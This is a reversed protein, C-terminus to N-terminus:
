EREVTFRGVKVPSKGVNNKRNRIEDKLIGLEAQRSSIINRADVKMVEVAGKLQEHTLSNGMMEEAKKQATISLEASTIGTGATKIKQYEIAAAYVANAFKIVKPDGTGRNLANM